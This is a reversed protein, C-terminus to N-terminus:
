RLAATGEPPQRAQGSRSTPRGTEIVFLGAGPEGRHRYRHRGPAIDPVTPRHGHNRRPAARLCPVKALRAVVDNTAVAGSRKPQNINRPLAGGLDLRPHQGSDARPTAHTIWATGLGTSATRRRLQRDSFIWRVIFLAGLVVSVIGLVLGATAMGMNSRREEGEVGL